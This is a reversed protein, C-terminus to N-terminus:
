MPKNSGNQNTETWKPRIRDVKSYKAGNQDMRDIQDM